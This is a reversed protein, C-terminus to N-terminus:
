KNKLITDIWFALSYKFRVDEQQKYDTQFWEKPIFCNGTALYINNTNYIDYKMIAKNNTILKKRLGISEITRMSLGSQFSDTYDLIAKSSLNIQAVEKAPIYSFILWSPNTGQLIKDSKIKIDYIKKDIYLAIKTKLSPHRKIFNQLFQCRESNYSAVCCVDYKITTDDRQIRDANFSNTYFLPLLKWTKDVEINATDFTFKEDFLNALIGKHELYKFSDWTYYVTKAGENLCNTKIKEIFGPQLINGRILLFVDYKHQKAIIKRYISQCFFSYLFNTKLLRSIKRMILFYFASPEEYFLDVEYERSTLEKLIADAYSYFKPMIILARKTDERKM